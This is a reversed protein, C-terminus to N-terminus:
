KVEVQSYLSGSTLTFGDPTTLTECPESLLLDVVPIRCIDLWNIGGVSVSGSPVTIFITEPVKAPSNTGTTCRFANTAVNTACAKFQGGVPILDDGFIFPALTYPSPLGSLTISRCGLNQYVSNVCVKTLGM